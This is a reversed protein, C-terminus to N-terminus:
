ADAEDASETEGNGHVSAGEETEDSKQPPEPKARLSRLLEFVEEMGGTLSNAASRALYGLQGEEARKIEQEMEVAQAEMEVLKQRHKALRERMKKLKAELYARGKL